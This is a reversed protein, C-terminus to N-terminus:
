QPNLQSINRQSAPYLPLTHSPIAPRAPVAFHKDVASAPQDHALRPKDWTYACLISGNWMSANM